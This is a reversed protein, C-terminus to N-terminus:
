GKYVVNNHWELFTSSPADALTSPTILLKKGHLAYYERGNSFEEKISSSVEINLEPDVTIYGKDFLIHLDSRLLLGNNTRHPGAQAYPKIHAAQLVPLTREGTMACRRTYAETVMVRFAGQGLRARTLFESGYRLNEHEESVQSQLRRATKARLLTLRDGVEHWLRAGAPTAMDVTKGTVISRYEKPDVPIWDEREFFFPEVLVLCGIIPDRETRGSKERYGLVRKSFQQFSECGNKQGFTEWALSLPLFSQRLFFAGGAIFNLPSHLKFLFPAGPLVAKFNTRGGPQWFNVEDPQLRSLLEFWRNDTIGVYSKVTPQKELSANALQRPLM